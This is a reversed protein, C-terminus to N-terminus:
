VEASGSGNVDGDGARVLLTVVRHCLFKSRLHAVNGAGHVNVDLLSKIRRREVHINVTCARLGHAHLSAVNRLVNEDREAGTKLGRRREPEIGFVADVVIDGHLRRLIANIRILRQLISGDVGAGRTRSRLNKSIQHGGSGGRAGRRHRVVVRLRHDVDISGHISAVQAGDGCFNELLHTRDFFFQRAATM